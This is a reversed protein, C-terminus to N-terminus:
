SNKFDQELKASNLTEHLPIWVSFFYSRNGLKSLSFCNSTISWFSSRCLISSLNKNPTIGNLFNLVWKYVLLVSWLRRIWRLVFMIVAKKTNNTALCITRRCWLWLIAEWHTPATRGLSCTRSTWRALPRQPLSSPHLSLQCPLLPRSHRLRRYKNAPWTWSLRTPSRPTPTSWCPELAAFCYKIIM